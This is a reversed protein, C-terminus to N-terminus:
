KSSSKEGAASRAGIETIETPQPSQLKDPTLAFKGRWYNGIRWEGFITGEGDYHGLYHVNHYRYQKVLAVTGATDYTGRFRFPGVVDVGHGSVEGSSFQLELDRMAQRGYVLQDWFGRWRGSPYM